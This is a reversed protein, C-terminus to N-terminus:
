PALFLLANYYCVFTSINLYVFNRSIASTNRLTSPQVCLVVSSNFSYYAEFLAQRLSFLKILTLLKYPMKQQIWSTIADDNTIM